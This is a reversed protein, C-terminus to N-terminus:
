WGFGCGTYGAIQREDPGATFSVLRVANECITSSKSREPELKHLVARLVRVIQM